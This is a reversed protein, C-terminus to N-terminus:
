SDIEITDLPVWGEEEKSNQCWAWGGEEDRIAVMLSEGPSTALETTDYPIRVVAGQEPRELCREPVWGRGQTTTVFVFAPWTTDREGVEVVEGSEVRIPPRTPVQHGTIARASEGM